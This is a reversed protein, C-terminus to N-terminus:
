NSDAEDFTTLKLCHDVIVVGVIRRNWQCCSAEVIEDDLFLWLSLLFLWFTASEDGVEALLFLDFQLVCDSANPIETDLLVVASHHQVTVHLNLEVNLGVVPRLKSELKLLLIDNEVERCVHARLTM